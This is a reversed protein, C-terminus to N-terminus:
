NDPIRGGTANETSLIVIPKVRLVIKNFLGTGYILGHIISAEAVRIFIYM